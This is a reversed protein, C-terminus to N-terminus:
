FLCLGTNPYVSVIVDGEQPADGLQGKQENNHALIGDHRLVWSESDTGLPMTNLNVKKTALGIGWVGAAVLYLVYVTNCGFM